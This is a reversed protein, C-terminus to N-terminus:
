LKIDVVKGTRMTNIAEQQRRINLNQNDNGKALKNVTDAIKAETKDLGMKKKIAEPDTSAKKANELAKSQGENIRQAIIEMASNKGSAESSNKAAMVNPKFAAAAEIKM